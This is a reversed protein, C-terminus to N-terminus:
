TTEESEETETKKEPIVRYASIKDNSYQGFYEYKVINNKQCHIMLKTEVDVVFGCEGTESIIIIDGDKLESVDVSKGNLAEKFKDLKGYEEDTVSPLYKFEESALAKYIFSVENYGLMDNYKEPYDDNNAYIDQWFYGLRDEFYAILEDVGTEYTKDALAYHTTCEDDIYISPEQYYTYNTDSLMFIGIEIYNFATRGLLTGEPVYVGDDSAELKKKM